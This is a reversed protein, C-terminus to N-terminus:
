KKNENNNVNRSEWLLKYKALEKNEEELNKIQENKGDIIEKTAEDFDFAAADRIVDAIFDQTIKVDSDAIKKLVIQIMNLNEPTMFELNLNAFNALSDIIIDAAAVIKDMNPRAHIIQQKRFEVKDKVMDRVYKMIATNENETYVDDMFLNVLRYLDEDKIYADYITDSKEDTNELEYGEIFYTAVAIIEAMNAYYPTYNGGTFYSDTIADIANIKDILTINEKVRINNKIMKENGKM